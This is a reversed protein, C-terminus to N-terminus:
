PKPFKFKLKNGLLARKEIMPGGPYDLGLMKAVKDFCEGVADDQTSGLIEYQGVNHAILIQCHGGSILVLLFPFETDDTLRVTLAHGELHNIAIIPKSAAAAIAKAYMVGVIVGGILGPGATVAIADIENYTIGASTMVRAIMLDLADMHSRAAIEPVVGGYIKHASVQSFIEHAIINKDSSVIAASTEDCSTEIGLIRIM